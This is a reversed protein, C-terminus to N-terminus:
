PTAPPTAPPVAPIAPSAGPPVAVSIRKMHFVSPASEGLVEGGADVIRAQLTYTDRDLNTVTFSTAAIPAGLPTGNLLVVLKHGLTGQLAPAVAIEISVNGSNDWVTGDNRPNVVAIEDYGAFRQAAPESPVAGGAPAAAKTPAPAPAAPAKPIRIVQANPRPQDSYQTNGDPDVWRYVETAPSAASWLGLCLLLRHM